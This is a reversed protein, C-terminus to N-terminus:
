HSNKKIRELLEYYEIDTMLIGAWENFIVALNYGYWYSNNSKVTIGVM